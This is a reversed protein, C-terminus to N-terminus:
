NEYCKFSTGDLILKEAVRSLNEQRLLTELLKAGARGAIMKSLM